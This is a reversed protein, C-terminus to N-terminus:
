IQFSVCYAFKRQRGEESEGTLLSYPEGGGGIYLSLIDHEEVPVRLRHKGFALFKNQM